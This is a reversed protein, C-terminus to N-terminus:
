MEKKRMTEKRAEFRRRRRRRGEREREREGERGRWMAILMEPSANQQIKRLKLLFCDVMKKIKRM